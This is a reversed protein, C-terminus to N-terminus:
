VGASTRQLEYLVEVCQALGAVTPSELLSLLPLDVNLARNLRSITQGVLISNGGLEFFDDHVGIRRAGLVEEWIGVLLKEVRTRPAVYSGALPRVPFQPACLVDSEGTQPSSEEPRVKDFSPRPLGFNHRVSDLFRRVRANGNAAPKPKRLPIVRKLAGRLLRQSAGLISALDARPRAGDDALWYSQREFPYTPLQVRHVEAEHFRAWDIEAGCLWLQGLTNILFNPEATTASAQRLSSFVVHDSQKDPHLRVFTGLAQGPGVELFIAAAPKLLERLGDSFRATDRLQRVWYLPNTAEDPTIWSGTQHSILPMQPPKLEIQRVFAEFEDLIPELMRSHGATSIPVRRSEIHQEALKSTLRDLAHVPGSVVCLKPHNVSALDLEDDLLALVEQESLSISLMGGAPLSEVLQGRLIVLGLAESFSLIGACCAATNEGMSHGILASPRLGWSMWLQALAYEVIFIAPLQLSPRELELEMRRGADRKGLILSRLDLGTRSHFEYLGTEVHQRFIQETRYLELAMGPYQSGGGPFMFFLPRQRLRECRTAVRKPDLTALANIADARDQCVIMRRHDFRRRGVQLTFSADALNLQPHHQLHHALNATATQLAAPSRASLLLLQYPRVGPSASTRAPAEEVIVHANTGGVGLSNVAARRPGSGAPDWRRLQANVYFPSNAFDIEPNPIEYHLSPPIQQHQLALVTKILGAIGAAADLHGFNSKVSGLACYGTKDTWARFGKSLAAVEIPDGMVTGTGHAEVYSITEAGVGAHALAEVVAEAQGAVSPASYDVKGGGDNNIASGRVVAQICDGDRVAEGLRKLVVLGVGSGFLTGQARADFPRCHGDPSFISGEQYLYGAKQPVRVSVGGALAMDCEENLLSQCASHVAVLSTSCATQVTVSPGRLNLKYSVRTALFDKDSAMLTLLYEEELRPLLGSYLFYTNLASGGFMGIAGPYSEPNYGAQELAHWACELFLRQQPDLFRAERPAYGFFGADFQDVEELLPAARVYRPDRLREEAVGAQRLEQPSFFRISEVGRCLNEWYQGLNRAGPFRCAMGIVAIALSDDQITKGRRHMSETWM